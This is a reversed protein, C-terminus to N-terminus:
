CGERRPSLYDMVPEESQKVSTTTVPVPKTKDPATKEAIKSCSISTAVLLVLTLILTKM